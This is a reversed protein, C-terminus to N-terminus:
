NSKAKNQIINKFDGNDKTLCNQLNIKTQLHHIGTKLECM